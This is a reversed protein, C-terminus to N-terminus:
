ADPGAGAINAVSSPRRIPSRAAEALVAPDPVFGFGATQEVEVAGEKLAAPGGRLADYLPTEGIQRELILFSPLAAAAHRSVADLVPGVPNHLSAHVGLSAALELIAIGHRLGTFRLDPLIVDHGGESILRQAGAISCLQEGGAIRTGAGHAADRVARQDSPLATEMDIPEEVWFLELSSVERMLQIAMPRDLRGHCDVLVDVDPGLAARVAAIRALGAEFAKKQEGRTGQSWRLGDFPAIKVATYGYRAAIAAAQAGFGDPGRDVIGRNINAYCPVHRRYPGGLLLALPLGASRAVADYLAQELGHTFARRAPSSQVQRLRALVNGIPFLEGSALEGSFARQESVVGDEDGFATAEGFGRTGDRLAVELFLWTTKDSVPLPHIRIDALTLDRNKNGLELIDGGPHM